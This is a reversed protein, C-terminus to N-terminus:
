KVPAQRATLLLVAGALLGSMRRLIFAHRWLFIIHIFIFRKPGCGQYWWHFGCISTLPLLTETVCGLKKHFHFLCLELFPRPIIGLAITVRLVWTLYKCILRLHARRPTSIVEWSTRRCCDNRLSMINKSFFLAPHGNNIEFIFRM